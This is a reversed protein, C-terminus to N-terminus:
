SYLSAISIHYQAIMYEDSTCSCFQEKLSLVKKIVSNFVQCSEEMEKNSTLVTVYRNHETVEAIVEFKNKWYIGNTWIYQVVVLILKM